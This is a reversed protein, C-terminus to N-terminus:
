FCPLLVSSVSTFGCCYKVQRCANIIGVKASPLPRNCETKNIQESEAGCYTLVIFSILILKMNKIKILIKNFVYRGIIDYRTM